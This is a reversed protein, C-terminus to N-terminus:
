VSVGLIKYISKNVKGSLISCLEAHFSWSFCLLLGCEIPLSYTELRLLDHIYQYGRLPPQYNNQFVLNVLYRSGLLWLVLLIVTNQQLLYVEPATWRGAGIVLELAPTWVGPPLTPSWYKAEPWECPFGSNLTQGRSEGWPLCGPLSVLLHSCALM